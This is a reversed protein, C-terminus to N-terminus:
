FHTELLLSTKKLWNKFGSAYGLQRSVAGRSQKRVTSGGHLDDAREHAEQGHEGGEDRLPEHHQRGEGLRQVAVERERQGGPALLAEVLGHLSVRRQLELVLHNIIRPNVNLRRWVVQRGGGHHRVTFNNLKTKCTTTGM